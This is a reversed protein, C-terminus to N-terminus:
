CPRAGAIPERGFLMEGDHALPHSSVARGPQSNAGSIEAAEELLHKSVNLDAGWRKISGHDFHVKVDKPYTYGHQRVFDLVEQARAQM